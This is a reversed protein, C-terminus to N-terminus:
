VHVIFQLFLFFGFYVCFLKHHCCITSLKFSHIYSHIGISRHQRDFHDFQWRMKEIRNFNEIPWVCNINIISQTVLLCALLKNCNFNVISVTGFLSLFNSIMRWNWTRQSILMNVNNSNLTSEKQMHCCIEILWWMRLLAFYNKLFEISYYILTSESHMWFLFDTAHSNRHQRTNFPLIDVFVM